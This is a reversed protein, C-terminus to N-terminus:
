ICPAYIQTALSLLAQHCCHLCFRPSQLSHHCRKWCFSDNAYSEQMVWSMICLKSHALFFNAIIQCPYHLSMPEDPPTYSGVYKEGRYVIIMRGSANIVIGSSDCVLMYQTTLIFYAQLWFTVVRVARIPTRARIKSALM